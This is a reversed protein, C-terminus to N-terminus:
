FYGKVYLYCILIILVTLATLGGILLNDQRARQHILRTMLSSKGLDEKMNLLRNKVSNMFNGQREFSQLIGQGLNIAENASKTSRDILGKEEVLNSMAKTNRTWRAENDEGSFLYAEQQKDKLSDNIVKFTKSANNELMKVESKFKEIKREWVLGSNGSRAGTADIDKVLAEAERVKSMVNQNFFEQVQKTLQRCAEPDKKAKSNRALEQMEELAAEASAIGAKLRSTLEGVEGNM